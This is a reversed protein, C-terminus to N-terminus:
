ASNLRGFDGQHREKSDGLKEPKGDDGLEVQVSEGGSQYLKSVYKYKIPKSQGLESNNMSPGARMSNMKYLVPADGYKLYDEYRKSGPTLLATTEDM